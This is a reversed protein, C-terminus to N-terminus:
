DDTTLIFSQEM